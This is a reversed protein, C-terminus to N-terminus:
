YQAGLGMGATYEAQCGYRQSRLGRIEYKLQCRATQKLEPGVFCLECVNAHRHSREFVDTLVGHKPMMDDAKEGSDM